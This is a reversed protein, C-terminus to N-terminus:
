LYGVFGCVGQFEKLVLDFNGMMFIFLSVEM